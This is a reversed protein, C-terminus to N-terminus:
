QSAYQQYLIWVSGCYDYGCAPSCSDSQDPNAKCGETGCSGCYHYAAKWRVIDESWGECEGTETGSNKKIKKAAAQLSLDLRCRDMLSYGSMIGQWTKEEFQMPGMVTTGLCLGTAACTDYCYGRQLEQTSAGIWWNPTTFKQIEEETYSWTGGAEVQSIAMLLGVPVCEEASIKAFLDKLGQSKVSIASPPFARWRLPNVPLVFAGATTMVIFFTLASIGGFIALVLATVPATSAPLTFLTTFFSVTGSAFSVLAGSVASIIGPFTMAALSGLGITLLGLGLSIGGISIIFAGAAALAAAIAMAINKKQEKLKNWIFKAADLVLSAVALVKSVVPEPLAALGLKTLIWSAAKKIALAGLKTLIPKVAKQYVASKVGELSKAKGFSLIRTFTDPLSFHVVTKEPAIQIKQYFRLNTGFSNLTQRLTWSYGTKKAWVPLQSLRPLYINIEPLFIQRRGTIKSFEHYNKLIGAFIRHTNEFTEFDKRKKTLKLLKPHDLPLGAEQLATLSAEIDKATLGQHLMERFISVAQREPPVKKATEILLQDGAIKDFVQITKVIPSLAVKKTFSFAARPEFITFVPIFAVREEESALKEAAESPLTEIPPPVAKKIPKPAPGALPVVIKRKALREQEKRFRIVDQKAKQLIREEQEKGIKLQEVLIDLNQPINPAPQEPPQFLIEELKSQVASLFEPDDPKLSIGLEQAFRVVEAFATKRDIEKITWTKQQLAYVLIQLKQYRQRLEENM